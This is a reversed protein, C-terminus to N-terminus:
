GASRRPEQKERSHERSDAGSMRTLPAVNLIQFPPTPLRHSQAHHPAVIGAHRVSRVEPPVFPDSLVPMLSTLPLLWPLGSLLSIPLVVILLATTEWIAPMAACSTSFTCIPPPAEAATPPNRCLTAPLTVPPLVLPPPFKELPTLTSTPSSSAATSRVIAMSYPWDIGWIVSAARRLTILRTSLREPRRTVSTFMDTVSTWIGSSRVISCSCSCVSSIALRWSCRAQALASCVPHPVPAGRGPGKKQSGGCKELSDAHHGRTERILHM